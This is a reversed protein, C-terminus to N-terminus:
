HPKGRRAELLVFSRIRNLTHVAKRKGKRKKLRGQIETPFIIKGV